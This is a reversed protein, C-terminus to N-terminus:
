DEMTIELGPGAQKRAELLALRVPRGVLHLRKPELCAARAATMWDPLRGAPCCLALRGGNQLVWAGAACVAAPTDAEAARAATHTRAPRGHGLIHYPPNCVALTHGGAPLLRRIEAWDGECIRVRDALGSRSVGARAWACAEPDNEVGDATLNPQRALLLLILAGTGCGLDCVREGAKPAAWRALRVSDAGLPFQSPPRYLTFPGITETPVCETPVYFVPASGAAGKTNGM